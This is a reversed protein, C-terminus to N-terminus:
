VTGSVGPSGRLAAESIAHAREIEQQSSRHSLWRVLMGLMSLAAGGLLCLLLLPDEKASKTAPIALLLVSVCSILYGTGKVRFFEM